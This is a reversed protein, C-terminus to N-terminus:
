DFGADFALKLLEARIFWECGKPVQALLSAARAAFYDGLPAWQWASLPHDDRLGYAGIRFPPVNDPRPEDDVLDLYLLPDFGLALTPFSHRLARVAWDAYSTVQIRDEVPEILVKLESLLTSNLPAFPKLDLQLRQTDPHGRLLDIADDLFGVRESTVAGNNGYYCKEVESRTMRTVNGKGSTDAELNPDHLLAFSNDALPIVDIEVVAVGASLCYELASLSGSPRNHDCNAAHHILTIPKERNKISQDPM